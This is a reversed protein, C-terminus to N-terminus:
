YVCLSVSSGLLKFLGFMLGVYIFSFHVNRVVVTILDYFGTLECLGM